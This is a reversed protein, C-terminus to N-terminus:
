SPNLCIPIDSTYLINQKTFTCICLMINPALICPYKKIKSTCKFFDAELPFRHKWHYLVYSTSIRLLEKTQEWLSIVNSVHWHPYLTSYVKFMQIQIVSHCTSYTLVKCSLRKPCFNCGDEPIERESLSTSQREADIKKHQHITHYSSKVKVFFFEEAVHCFRKKVALWLLKKCWLLTM